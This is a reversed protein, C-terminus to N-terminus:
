DARPNSVKDPQPAPALQPQVVPPVDPHAGVVEVECLLPEVPVPFERHEDGPTQGHHAGKDGERGPGGPHVEGLEAEVREEPADGPDERQGVEAVDESLVPLPDPVEEVVEVVGDGHGEHGPRDVQEPAPAPGALFAVGPIRSGPSSATERRGSPERLSMRGPPTNKTEM